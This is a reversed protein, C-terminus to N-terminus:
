TAMIQAARDWARHLGVANLLEATFPKAVADALVVGPATTDIGAAALVQDGDGWAAIVKCHRFLEGLLISLKIDTFDPIGGAVVVADYEISRTTLLTREVIQESRGKKVTGGAPAIVRLVAGQAEVARRLKTVGALDAGPAAFVGIVRGTIPGPETVILSLAPSAVVEVPQGAPAPLGLGEAVAACLETDVNALVGLMRERIPQEYCKGLEFTFAEVIHVKEVETM